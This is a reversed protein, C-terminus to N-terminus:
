GELLLRDGSELLLFDGSELLLAGGAVPGVSAGGQRGHRWFAPPVSGRVVRRVGDMIANIVSM